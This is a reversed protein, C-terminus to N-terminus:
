MLISLLTRIGTSLCQQSGIKMNDKANKKNGHLIIRAKM